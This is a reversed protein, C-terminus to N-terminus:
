MRVHNVTCLNEGLLIKVILSELIRFYFDLLTFVYRLLVLHNKVNDDILFLLHLNPIDDKVTIAFQFVYLDLTSEQPFTCKRLNMFCSLEGREQFRFLKRWISPLLILLVQYFFVIFMTITVRTDHFIAHPVNVILVYVNVQLYFFPLFIIDAIDMPYTIRHIGGTVQTFHETHTLSVYIILLQEVLTQHFVFIGYTIVIPVISVQEIVQIWRFHIDNAVRDVKFHTDLFSRLRMDTPHSDVTVVAQIFVHNTTFQTGLRAVEERFIGQCTRNTIQSRHSVEVWLLNVRFYHRVVLITSNVDVPVQFLLRVVLDLERKSPSLRTNDSTDTQLQIVEGHCVQEVLVLFVTSDHRDTITLHKRNTRM